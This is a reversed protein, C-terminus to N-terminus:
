CHTVASGTVTFTSLNVTGAPCNVTPLGAASFGQASVVGAAKQNGAGDVSFNAYDILKGTITLNQFNFADAVTTADYVRMINGGPNLSQVQDIPSGIMFLNWFTGATSNTSNDVVYAADTNSGEYLSDNTVEAGYRNVGGGSAMINTELQAGVVYQAVGGPGAQSVLDGGLLYAINPVATYANGLIAVKDGSPSGAITFIHSSIAATVTTQGQDNLQVDYGRVEANLQGNTLTQPATISAYNTLDLSGVALPGTQAYASSSLLLFSIILLRKMTKEIGSYAM